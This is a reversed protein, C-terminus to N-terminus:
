SGPVGGASGELPWPQGGDRAPIKVWIGKVAGSFRVAASPRLGGPNVGAAAAEKRVRTIFESLEDVTLDCNAPEALIKSLPVPAEPPAQRSRRHHGPGAIRSV